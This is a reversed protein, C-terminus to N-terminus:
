REIKNIPLRLSDMIQLSSSGYNALVLIRGDPSIVLSRPFEGAPISGIVSPHDDGMSTDLVLLTETGVPDTGFRNSNGVVVQRGGAIAVIPVPATGVPVLGVRAHAPDVLFRRTDFIEVNNDKRATVYARDGSTSLALHVPSCGAELKGVVSHKPDKKAREVDVILIAGAPLKSPADLPDEVECQNPWGWEPLARESITYLLREDSSFTLAVPGDGVPIKGVVANKLNSRSRMMTLDIVTITNEAEESAFLFRDDATVRVLITRASPNERVSNIIPQGRGSILDRTSLLVVGEGNAAILSRGDHTLAMGVPGPHLEVLRVLGLHGGANHLVAVGSFKDPEKNTLLSVFVWCGDKSFVTQFPHGPLPLSTMQSSLPFSCPPVPPGGFAVNLFVAALFTAIRM